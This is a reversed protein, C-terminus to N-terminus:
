YLRNHEYIRIIRIVDRKSLSFRKALVSVPTSLMHAKYVAKHDPYRGDLYDVALRQRYITLAKVHAVPEIYLIVGTGYVEDEMLALGGVGVVDTAEVLPLVDVDNMHEDLGHVTQESALLALVEVEYGVDGVALAM